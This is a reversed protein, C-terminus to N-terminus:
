LNSSYSSVQSRGSAELSRPAVKGRGILWGRVAVELGAEASLVCRPMQGLTGAGAPLRM